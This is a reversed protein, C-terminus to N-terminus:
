PRVGTWLLIGHGSSDQRAAQTADDASGKIFRALLGYLMGVAEDIAREMGTFLKQAGSKAM